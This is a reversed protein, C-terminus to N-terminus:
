YTLLPCVLCHSISLEDPSDFTFLLCVGLQNDALVQQLDRIQRREVREAGLEQAQQGAIRSREDAHQVGLDLLLLGGGGGGSGEPGLRKGDRLREEREQGRRGRGRPRFGFM